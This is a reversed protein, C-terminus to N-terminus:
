KPHVHINRPEMPGRQPQAGPLSEGKHGARLVRKLNHFDSKQHLSQWNWSDFGAVFDNFLILMMEGHSVFVTIAIFSCDTRRSSSM